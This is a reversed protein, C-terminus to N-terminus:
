AMNLGMVRFVAGGSSLNAVNVSWGQEQALQHVTALGVGDGPSASAKNYREFVTEVEESPIGRGNDAVILDLGAGNKKAGIVVRTGQSHHVANSVLNALIRMLVVPEGHLRASTRVPKLRLGKAAAEDDFMTAVNQLARWVEFGPSQADSATTESPPTSKAQTRSRELVQAIYSVGQEAEQGDEMKSLAIQLSLLPQKLDHSAAELDRRRKEAIELALQYDIEAENLREQLNAQDALAQMQAERAQDRQSRMEIARIVLAAAFLLGDLAFLGNTFHGVEWNAFALAQFADFGRTVALLLLMASAFLFWRAGPLKDNLGKFIGIAVVVAFQLYLVAEVIPRAWQWHINLDFVSLLPLTALGTLTSLFLWLAYKPYRTRVDLFSAVTLAYFIVTWAWTLRFAIGTAVEGLGLYYSDLGWQSLTALVLGFHFGAYYAATTERLVLAFALLALLLAIRVGLMLSAIALDSQRDADFREESVLRFYSDFPIGYEADIWVEIRDRAPVEIIKSAVLREQPVREDMAQTVWRNDLILRPEGESIAFARLTPGYADRADIRWREVSDGSNTLVLRAWIPGLLYNADMVNPDKPALTELVESQTYENSTAALARAEELSLNAAIGTDDYEADFFVYSAQATLSEIESKGALDLPAPESAQAAQGFLLLLVLTATGFLKCLRPPSTSRAILGSYRGFPLALTLM